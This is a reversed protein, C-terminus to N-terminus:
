RNSDGNPIKTSMIRRVDDMSYPYFNNTDVGVDFSFSNPDDPLCNHSHGYLHYRGRHSKPWVRHAYHSLWIYPQVSKIEFVDTISLFIQDRILSGTYKRIVHDHNGLIFHINRCRIRRRIEVVKKPDGNLSFAWDGLFYFTDNPAICENWRSIITDNMEEVSSFPRKSYELIGRHYFHSDSSFWIM